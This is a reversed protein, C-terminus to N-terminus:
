SLPLTARDVLYPRASRASNMESPEVTSVILTEETGARVRDEGLPGLICSSGLYEFGDEHGSYNACAIHIGNELARTPLMKEAVVPWCTVLAAPVALLTAGALASARALEPFEIDYCILVGLRHGDLEFLTISRGHAYTAQEDTGSLGIKRHNALIAGDPGICLAANYVMGDAAEPYGLVIALDHRHAIESARRASPGDSAEARAHIHDPMGGYGSLFVEPTVLLRAGRDAAEGAARDLRQMRRTAAEDRALCQYVAVALPESTSM